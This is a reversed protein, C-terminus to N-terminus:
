EGIFEFSDLFHDFIEQYGSWIAAPNVVFSLTFRGDHRKVVYHRIRAGLHNTADFCAAEYRGLKCPYERMTKALDDRLAEEDKTSPIATFVADPYLSLEIIAGKDPNDGLRPSSIVVDDFERGPGPVLNRVTWSAPHESRLMMKRNTYPKFEPM